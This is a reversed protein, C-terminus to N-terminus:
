KRNFQQKLTMAAMRLKGPATLYIHRALPRLRMIYFHYYAQGLVSIPLAYDCVKIAGDSWSSKYPDGPVMLDFTVAGDNLALRQSRDMHLRAPSLDTLQPDHATIFACHRGRYRLGLEFSVPRDGTSLVSIVPRLESSQHQALMKLFGGMGECYLASTHLGRQDIWEQKHSILIDCVENFESGHTVKYFSVPGLNQLANAIRRRRRRQVRSYRAQYADEDDFASLDM